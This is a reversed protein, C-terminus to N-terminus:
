QKKEETPTSGSQVSEIQRPICPALCLAMDGNDVIVVVPSLIKPFLVTLAAKRYNLAKIITILDEIYRTQYFIEGGIANTINKARFEDWSMEETNARYEPSILTSSCIGITKEFNLFVYEKNGEESNVRIFDKSSFNEKEPQSMIYSMFWDKKSL